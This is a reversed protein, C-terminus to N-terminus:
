NNNNILNNIIIEDKNASEKLGIFNYLNKRFIYYEIINKNLEIAKNIEKGANVYKKDLFYNKALNFHVESNDILQNFLKFFNIAYKYEKIENYLLGLSYFVYPSHLEFNCSLLLYDESEKFNKLIRNVEGYM